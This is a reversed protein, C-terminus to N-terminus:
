RGCWSGCVCVGSLHPPLLDSGAAAAAAGAAREAQACLLAARTSPCSQSVLRLCCCQRPIRLAPRVSIHRLPVVSKFHVYDGPATAMAVLHRDRKKVGMVTAADGALGEDSRASLHFSRPMLLYTHSRAYLTSHCPPPPNPARHGSKSM